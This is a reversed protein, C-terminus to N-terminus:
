VAAQERQERRGQLFAYGAPTVTIDGASTPVPQLAIYGKDLMEQYIEISLEMVMGIGRDVIRVTDRQKGVM